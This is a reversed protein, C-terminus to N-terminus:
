LLLTDSRRFFARGFGIIGSTRAALMRAGETISYLGTPSAGYVYHDSQLLGVSGVRGATSILGTLEISRQGCSVVASIRKKGFVVGESLLM